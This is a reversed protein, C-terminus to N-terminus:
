TRLSDQSKISSAEARCPSTSGRSCFHCTCVESCPPLHWWVAEKSSSQRGGYWSVLIRPVKPASARCVTHQLPLAVCWQGLLDVFALTAASLLSSSLHVADQHGRVLRAFVATLRPQLRESPTSISTVSTCSGSGGNYRVRRPVGFGPMMELVGCIHSDIGFRCFLVRRSASSPM